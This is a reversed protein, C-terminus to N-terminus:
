PSNYGTRRKFCALNRISSPGNMCSYISVQVFSVKDPGIWPTEM